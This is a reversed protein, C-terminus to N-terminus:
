NIKLNYGPSMKIKEQHILKWIGERITKQSHWFSLIKEIEIFNTNKECLFLISKELDSGNFHVNDIFISIKM